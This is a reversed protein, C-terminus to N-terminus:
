FPVDDSGPAPGPAVSSNGATAKGFVRKLKDGYRADLETLEDRRLKKRTPERHISWRERTTGNYTEHDCVVDIERDFLDVAGPVEPDLYRFSDRDFGIAKLDSMVWDITKTTIAKSYTRTEAPCPGLEGTATYGGILEISVFVTEHQQGATSKFVGYDKVRGRFKGKEILM